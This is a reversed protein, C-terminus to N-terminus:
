KAPWYPGKQAKGCLANFKCTAVCAEPLKLEIRTECDMNDQAMCTIQDQHKKAIKSFAIGINFTQGKENIRVVRGEIPVNNLGPLTLIMELKKTRPPELFLILSMGGASLNVLLAPQNKPSKSADEDGFNITIPEAMGECVPFRHHQRRDAAAVSKDNKSSM